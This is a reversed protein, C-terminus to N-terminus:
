NTLRLILQKELRKLYLEFDQEDMYRSKYSDEPSLHVVDTIVYSIGPYSVQPNFLVENVIEAIREKEM